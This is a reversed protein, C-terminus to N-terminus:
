FWVGALIIIWIIACVVHSQWAIQQKRTLNAIWAIVVTALINLAITLM